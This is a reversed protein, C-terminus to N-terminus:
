SLCCVSNEWTCKNQTYIDTQLYIVDIRAFSGVSLVQLIVFVAKFHIQVPISCSRVSMNQFRSSGLM